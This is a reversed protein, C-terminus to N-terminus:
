SALKHTLQGAKPNNKLHHIRSTTAISHQRQTCMMMIRDVSVIFDQRETCALRAVQVSDTEIALFEATWSPMTVGTPAVPLLLTRNARSGGPVM